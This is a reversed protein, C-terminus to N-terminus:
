DTIILAVSGGARIIRRALHIADSATMRICGHSAAEGISDPDNTGHIFYDPAQFYIKLGQMPNAPAGPPQYTEDRAWDVDPPRWSPNWVIDGTRFRGTPTPHRPQGVAISYTRVVEGNEVVSLERASLSVELRVPPPDTVRDRLSWWVLAPVIPLVTLLAVYRLRRRWGM